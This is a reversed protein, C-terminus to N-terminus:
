IYNLVEEKNTLYQPPVVVVLWHGKTGLAGCAAGGGPHCANGKEGLASEFKGKSSQGEWLVLNPGPSIILSPPGM